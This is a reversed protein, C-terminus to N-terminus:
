GADPGLGFGALLQATEARGLYSKRDRWRRALGALQGLVGDFRSRGNSVNQGHLVTLGLPRDLRDVHAVREGLKEHRAIFVTRPGQGWPGEPWIGNEPREVMTAFPTVIPSRYQRARARGEEWWTAVPADVIAPLDVGQETLSRVRAQVEAVFRPHLADDNDLRTTLFLGDKPARGRLDAIMEEPTEVFVAETGPRDLLAEIRAKRSASRTRDFYVLWRFDRGEQRAVSPLCYREFLQMRHAMWGDTYPYLDGYNLNFRTILLHTLATM